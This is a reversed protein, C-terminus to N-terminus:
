TTTSGDGTTEGGTAHGTQAPEFGNPGDFPEVRDPRPNMIAEPDNRIPKRKVVKDRCWRHVVLFVETPEPQYDYHVTQYGFVM